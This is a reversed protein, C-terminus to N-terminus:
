NSSGHKELMQSKLFRNTGGPIKPKSLCRSLLYNKGLFTMHLHQSHQSASSFETEAIQGAMHVTLSTGRGGVIQLFQNIQLLCRRMDECPGHTMKRTPKELIRFM